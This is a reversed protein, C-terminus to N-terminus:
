GEWRSFRKFVRIKYDVGLSQALKIFAERDFGPYDVATLRVSFGNAVADKIFKLTSEWSGRRFSPNVVKYYEKSSGANISVSFCDILGRLQALVDSRGTILCALGCTNVRISKAGMKRLWKAIKKMEEFRMFPEGYGCFVVEEYIRPNKIRYMYEEATSSKEVHLNYGLVFNERGRFCFLCRCPCQSSLNIYLRNGVTYILRPKAEEEKLPLGFLRKANVTTIRVVDTFSVNLVEAATLATHAIYTPKNRKGRVPQPPLYPSDTELLLRSTPVFRLLERLETNKPYTLPGAFSVYLGEDLAVELLEKDGSFCHLVGKVGKFKQKIFDATERYSNRTHVIVPLNLQRALEVQMEFIEYQATKSSLNRYFDLGTEGVAVVKPSSEALSKLRYYDKLSHEEAEHPHIGVTAYIKERSEALNVAKVSDKLSCAVTIVGDLRSECEELVDERDKDFEPFHLHAHTDIM